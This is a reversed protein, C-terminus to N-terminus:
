LQLRALRRCWAISKVLSLASKHFVLAIPLKALGYVSIVLATRRPDGKCIPLQLAGSSVSSAWRLLSRWVEM